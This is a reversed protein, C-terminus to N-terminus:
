VTVCLMWLFSSGPLLQMVASRVIADGARYCFTSIEPNVRWPDFMPPQMSVSSPGLRSCDSAGKLFFSKVDRTIVTGLSQNLNLSPTDKM